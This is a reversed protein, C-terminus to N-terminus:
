KDTTEPTPSVIDESTLDLAEQQKQNNKNVRRVGFFM